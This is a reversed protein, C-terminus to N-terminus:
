CTTPMGRWVSWRRCVLRAFQAGSDQGHKREALMPEADCLLDTIRVNLREPHVTAGGVSVGAGVSGGRAEGVLTGVVLAELVLVAIAAELGLRVGTGVAVWRWSAMVGVAEGVRVLRRVEVAAALWVGVAAPVGVGVGLGKGM